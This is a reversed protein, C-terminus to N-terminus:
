DRWDGCHLSWESGTEDKTYLTVKGLELDLNNISKIIHKSEGLVLPLYMQTPPRTKNHNVSSLYLVGSKQEQLLTFSGDVRTHALLRSILFLQDNIKYIESHVKQLGKPRWESILKEQIEESPHYSLEDLTLTPRGDVLDALEVLSEMEQKNIGM